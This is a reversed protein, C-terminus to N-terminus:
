RCIRWVRWKKQYKEYLASTFIDYSSPNDKANNELIIFLEEDAKSKQKPIISELTWTIIYGSETYKYPNTNM